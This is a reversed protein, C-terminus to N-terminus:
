GRKADTAAKKHKINAWKSHGAMTNAEQQNLKRFKLGSIKGYHVHDFDILNTTFLINYASPDSWHHTM